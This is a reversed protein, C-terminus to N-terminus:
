INDHIRELTRITMKSLEEKTFQNNTQWELINTILFEKYEANNMLKGGNIKGTEAQGNTKKSEKQPELIVCRKESTLVKKM